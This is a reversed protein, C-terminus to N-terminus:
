WPSNRLPAVIALSKGFNAAEGVRLVMVHEVLESFLEQVFFRLRIVAEFIKGPVGDYADGERAAAEPPTSNLGM